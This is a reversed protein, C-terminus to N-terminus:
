PAEEGRLCMNVSRLYSLLNDGGEITAVPHWRVQHWSFWGWSGPIPPSGTANFAPPNGGNALRLDSDVFFNDPPTNPYGPPIVFLLKTVGKNFRGDPLPYDPIMVWDFHEGHQVSPFRARFLEIEQKVREHM